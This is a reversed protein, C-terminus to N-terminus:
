ASSTTKSRKTPTTEQILVTDVVAGIMQVVAQRHEPAVQDLKAAIPLLLHANPVNYASIDSPDLWNEAIYFELVNCELANAIRRWTEARVGSRGGLLASLFSRTIAMESTTGTRGAVDSQSMGMERQARLLYYGLTLSTHELRHTRLYAYLEDSNVGLQEKAKQYPSDGTELLEEDAPPTARPQAKPPLKQKRTATM